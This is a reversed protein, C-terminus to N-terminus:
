APGNRREVSVDSALTAYVAPPWRKHTWFWEWPRARIQAEILDTIEDQIQQINSEDLINRDVFEIQTVDNQQRVRLRSGGTTAM